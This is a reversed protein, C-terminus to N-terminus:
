PAWPAFCTSLAALWAGAFGTLAVVAVLPVTALPWRLPGCGAFYRLRFVPSVHLPRPGAGAHSALTLSREFNKISAEASFFAAGLSTLFAAGAFFAFDATFDATAVFFIALLFAIGAFGTAGVFATGFFGTAFAAAAASFATLVFTAALFTAALFAPAEGDEDSLGAAVDIFFTAPFFATFAFFTVAFDAALLVADALELCVGAFFATTAFFGASRAAPPSAELLTATLAGDGVMLYHSASVRL